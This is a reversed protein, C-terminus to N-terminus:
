MKEPYVLPKIKAILELEDPTLTRLIYLKFEGSAVPCVILSAYPAKSWSSYGTWRFLHEDRCRKCELLLGESSAKFM